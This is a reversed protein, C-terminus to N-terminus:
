PLCCFLSTHVVRFLFALVQPLAPKGPRARAGPGEAGRGSSDRGAGEKLIGRQDSLTPGWRVPGGEGSSGSGKARRFVAAAPVRAPLRCGRWQPNVEPFTGEPARAEPPFVLARLTVVCVPDPSTVGGYGRWVPHFGESTDGPPPGDLKRQGFFVTSTMKHHGSM